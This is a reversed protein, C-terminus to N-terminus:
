PLHARSRPQKLLIGEPPPWVGDWSVFVLRAPPVIPGTHFVAGVFNIAFSLMCAGFGLLVLYGVWAPANRKQRMVKVQWCAIVLAIAGSVLAVAISSVLGAAAIAMLWWAWPRMPVAYVAHSKGGVRGRYTGDGFAHPFVGHAQVCILLVMFCPVFWLACTGFPDSEFEPANIASKKM